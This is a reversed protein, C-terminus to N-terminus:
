TRTAAALAEGVIQQERAIIQRWAARAHVRSLWDKTKPGLPDHAYSLTALASAIAIDGLSFEGLLFGDEPVVSELYGIAPEMAIQAETATAEDRPMGLLEPGIFRAFTLKTINPALITDNFEDYWIALGRAEPDQPLLAPEPQKAEMYEVIATSDTLTFEGDRIAPMMKFPSAAIFGATPNHPTALELEAPIGKEAAAFLVKRVFPSTPFGFVIM